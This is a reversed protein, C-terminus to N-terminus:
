TDKLTGYFGEQVQLFHGRYDSGYTDYNSMITRVQTGCRYRLMGYGKDERNVVDVRLEVHHFKTGCNTISVHHNGAHRHYRRTSDQYTWNLPGQVYAQAPVPAIVTLAALALALAVLRQVPSVSM